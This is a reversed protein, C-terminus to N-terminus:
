LKALFAAFEQSTFLVKGNPRWLDDFASRLFGTENSVVVDARLLHTMLDLDAQANLDIKENPRTAACFSIYAMNKVFTTFYPYADKDKSWRDGVARPNWCRVLPEIFARGAHDLEASLYREFNAQGHRKADYRVATKWDAVEQRIDKSVERQAARKDDEIGREDRSEHFARWSGDLPVNALRAILKQQRAPRMFINTKRGRGQVLEEHWIELFDNCFRDVTSTIFPIWKNILDDRRREAGYARFTEELFVHGYIPQIRGSKCLRELPGNALLDFTAPMFANTDFVVRLVPKSM